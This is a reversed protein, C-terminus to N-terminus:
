RERKMTRRELMADAIDYARAAIIQARTIGTAHQGFWQRLEHDKAEAPCLPLANGALWDRLTMGNSGRVLGTGDPAREDPRPFAFEDNDQM